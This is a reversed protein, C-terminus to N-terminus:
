KEKKPKADKAKGEDPVPLPDFGTYGFADTYAKQQKGLAAAMPSRPLTLGWAEFQVYAPGEATVAAVAAPASPKPAAAVPAPAVAPAPAPTPAKPAAAPAPAPTPAPAPPAAAAAAPAVYSAFHPVDEKKEVMIAVLDGVAVDAAGDGKLIKALFGDDQCEFAVTAKDTEIEAISDGPALADGEKKLWKAITGTKMTPSLAPMAVLTHAPLSMFRTGVARQGLAAHASLSYM